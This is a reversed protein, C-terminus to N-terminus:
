KIKRNKFFIFIILILIICSLILPVTVMKPLSHGLTSDLINFQCNSKGAVYLQLGRSTCDGVYKDIQMTIPYCWKLLLKAGEPTLYYLQLGSFCHKVKYIKDHSQFLNNVIGQFGNSGLHLLSLMHINRLSNEVNKLSFQTKKLLKSYQVVDDECIIIPEQLKVCLKWCRIHSIACAAQKIDTLDYFSFLVKRDRITTTVHPHIYEYNIESPTTAKLMSCTEICDLSDLLEKTPYGREKLKSELAIIVAKYKM